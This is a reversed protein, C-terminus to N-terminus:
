SYVFHLAGNALSTTGATLATTGSAVTALTGTNAPLMVSANATLTPSYLKVYKGGNDYISLEGNINSSGGIRIAGTSGTPLIRLAEVNSSNYLFMGKAYIRNFPTTTDGINSGSEDALVDAGGSMILNGTMTDGAKNLYAKWDSWSDGNSTISYFSYYAQGNTSVFDFEIRTASSRKVTLLGYNSPYITSNSTTVSYTLVSNNPLNSAIDAITESGVTLGIDSLANYTKIGVHTNHEGYLPYWTTVDNVTRFLQVATGLTDSDNMIKIGTRNSTDDEIDSQDILVAGTTSASNLRIGNTASENNKIRLQGTMTDGSKKVVSDDKESYVQKWGSFTSENTRLYAYYYGTNEGIFEFTVRAITARKITLVGNEAAPILGGSYSLSSGTVVCLVSYDKMASAVEFPTSDTTLSSSIQALTSYSEWQHQADKAAGFDEATLGDIIDWNQNLVTIDPPADTLDIKHLNFNTTKSSM